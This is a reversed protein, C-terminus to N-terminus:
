TNQSEPEHNEQDGGNEEATSEQTPEPEIENLPVPLEGSKIKVERGTIRRLALALERCFAEIVELEARTLEECM